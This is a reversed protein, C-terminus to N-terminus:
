KLAGALAVKVRERADGEAIEASEYEADSGEAEMDTTHKSAAVLCDVLQMIENVKTM